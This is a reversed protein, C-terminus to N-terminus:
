QCPCLFYGQLNFTLNKSQSGPDDNQKTATTATKGAQGSENQQGVSASFYDLVFPRDHRYLSNLRKLLQPYSLDIWVEDIKEWQPEGLNHQYYPSNDVFDMYRDVKEYARNLESSRNELETLATEFNRSMQLDVLVFYIGTACLVILACQIILWIPAPKPLNYNM